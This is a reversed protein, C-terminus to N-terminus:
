IMEALFPVLVPILMCLVTGSVFSYIAINANTAKEVVPLCVDMGAAGGLGVSEVYGIKKAVIPILIISLLERLINHIFSVASLESSYKSIIAPALSYWSMGSAVTMSEIPSVPLILSALAAFTLTGLAVAVPIVFIRWGVQRFISVVKGETGLDVGIFFLLICLLVVISKDAFLNFATVYKNPLLYFGCLFGLTISAIIAKTM